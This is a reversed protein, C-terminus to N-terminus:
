PYYAGPTVGVLYRITNNYCRIARLVNYQTTGDVVTGIHVRTAVRRAERELWDSMYATNLRTVCVSCPNREQANFTLSYPVGLLIFITCLFFSRTFFLEFFATEHLFRNECQGPAGRFRRQTKGKGVAPVFSLSPTCHALFLLVSSLRGKLCLFCCRGLAWLYTHM